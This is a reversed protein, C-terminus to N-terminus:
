KKNKQKILIFREVYILILRRNFRPLKKFNIETGNIIINYRSPVTVNKKKKYFTVTPIGEKYYHSPIVVVFHINKETSM